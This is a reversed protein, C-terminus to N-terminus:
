GGDGGDGGVKEGTTATGSPPPTLFSNMATHASSFSRSM